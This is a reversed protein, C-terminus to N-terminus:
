GIARSNGFGTLALRPTTLRVAAPEDLTARIRPDQTPAVLGAALHAYRIAAIRRGITPVALGRRLEHQVFRLVTATDAPLSAIGIAGCWDCFNQFDNGYQRVTRPALTKM